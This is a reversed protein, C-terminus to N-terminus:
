LYNSARRFLPWWKGASSWLLPLSNDPCNSYFAFALAFGGFGHQDKAPIDSSFRDRYIEDAITAVRASLDPVPGESDLYSAERLPEAAYRSNFCRCREPLEYAFQLSYHRGGVSRAICEGSIRTRAHQTIMTPALVVEDFPLTGAALLGLTRFLDDGSGSFDELVVLRRKGNLYRDTGVVEAEFRIAADRAAPPLGQSMRKRPYVWLRVDPGVLRRRGRDHFYEANLHVFANIASSDSNAVFLTADMEEDLFQSAKVYDFPRLSRRAIIADLLVRRIGRLFLQRQLFELQRGTVFVVRTALLFAYRQHQEPMQAIWRQLKPVYDQVLDNQFPQYRLHAVNLLTTLRQSYPRSDAPISTAPLTEAYERDWDQVASALNFGAM